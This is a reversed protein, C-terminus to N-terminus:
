KYAKSRCEINFWIYILRNILSVKIKLKVDIEKDIYFSFSLKKRFKFISIVYIKAFFFYIVKRESM